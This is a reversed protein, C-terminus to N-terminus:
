RHVIGNSHLYFIASTITKSIHVADCEDYSGKVCLRDFLDEPALDILHNLTEFYDHLTLINKHGQSIRKCVTIENRLMFEKGQTFIFKKNIKKIAFIYGTEV